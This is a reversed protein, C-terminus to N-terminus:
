LIVLITTFRTDSVLKPGLETVLLNQNSILKSWFKEAKFILLSKVSSFMFLQTFNIKQITLIVCFM